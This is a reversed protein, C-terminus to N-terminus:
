TRDELVARAEDVPALDRARRLANGPTLISGSYERMVYAELDNACERLAGELRRVRARLKEAEDDGARRNWAAIADDQWGTADYGTRVDEARAGCSCEWWGWKGTYNANQADTAFQGDTGGCFPCPKLPSM